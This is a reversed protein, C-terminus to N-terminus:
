ERPEQMGLCSESDVQTWSKPSGLGWWWSFDVILKQTLDTVPAPVTLYGALNWNDHCKHSGYGGKRTARSRIVTWWINAVLVRERAPMPKGLGSAEIIYRCEYCSRFFESQFRIEAQWLYNQTRNFWATCIDSHSVDQLSMESDRFWQGVVWLDMFRFRELHMDESGHAWSQRSIENWKYEWLPRRLM